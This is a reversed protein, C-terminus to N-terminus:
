NSEFISSSRNGDKMGEMWTGGQISGDSVHKM